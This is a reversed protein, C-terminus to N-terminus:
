TKVAANKFDRIWDPWRRDSWRRQDAKQVDPDESLLGNIAEFGEFFIPNHGNESYFLLVDRQGPQHFVSPADKFAQQLTSALSGKINLTRFCSDAAETDCVFRMKRVLRDDTYYPDRKEAGNLKTFLRSSEAYTAFLNGLIKEPDDGSDDVFLRIGDWATFRDLESQFTEKSVQEFAASFERALTNIIERVESEEWARDSTKVSEKETLVHLLEDYKQLLKSKGVWGKVFRDQFVQRLPKKETGDQPPNELLRRVLIREINERGNIVPQRIGMRRQDEKLVSDVRRQKELSIKQACHSGCILEIAVIMHDTRERLQKLAAILVSETAFNRLQERYDKLKDCVDEQGSWMGRSIPNWKSPYDDTQTQLEDIFTDQLGGPQYIAKERENTSNSTEELHSSIKDKVTKLVFKLSAFNTSDGGILNDRLHKLASDASQIWEAITSASSRLNQWDGYFRDLQNKRENWNADFESATKPLDDDDPIIDEPSPSFCSNLSNWRLSNEFNQLEKECEVTDPSAFHAGAIDTAVKSECLAIISDDPLAINLLGVREINNARGPFEADDQSAQIVANDVDRGIDLAITKSVFLRGYYEAILRQYSEFNPLLAGSDRYAGILVVKDYPATRLKFQNESLPLSGVSLHRPWEPYVIDRGKVSQVVSLEALAYATNYKQVHRRALNRESALAGAYCIDGLLFNGTVKAGSFAEKIILAFDIFMGSCTGGALLGFVYCDIQNVNIEDALPDGKNVLTDREESLKSRVQEFYTRLNAAHFLMRGAPREGGCGEEFSSFPPYWPNGDEKLYWWSKIESALDSNGSEFFNDVVTVTPMSGESMPLHQMREKSAGPELDEESTVSIFSFWKQTWADGHQDILQRLQSVIKSGTSGLGIFIAPRLTSQQNKTM